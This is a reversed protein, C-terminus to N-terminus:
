SGRYTTCGFPSLLLPVHYHRQSEVARFQVTVAELFPTVRGQVRFYADVDFTLRFSGALVPGKGLAGIRGDADTVAEGVVTWAGKFEQALTVSLGAAPLGRETDLVHTSLWSADSM